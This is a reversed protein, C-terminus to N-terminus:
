AQGWKPQGWEPGPTTKAAGGQDRVGEQPAAQRVPLVPMGLPAAALPPACADLPTQPGTGRLVPLAPSPRGDRRLPAASVAGAPRHRRGGVRPGLDKRRVHRVETPT